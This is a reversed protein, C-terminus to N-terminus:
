LSNGGGTVTNTVSSTANSTEVSNTAGKGTNSNVENGGSNAVSLVGTLAVTNSSQKAVKENESTVNVTNQSDKGNGQVKVDTDHNASECGCCPNEATNSGGSVTNKVNSNASGTKVSNSGGTNGKVKNHGSNAFSGVLTVSVTNNEQKVKCKSTENVKVNNKSGAGNGKVVVNQAFAAPALTAVLLGVTAVGTATKLFLKNM